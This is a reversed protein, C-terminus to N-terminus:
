VHIFASVKSGDDSSESGSSSGSDGSGESSSSNDPKKDGRGAELKKKEKKKRRAKAKKAAEEELPEVILNIDDEEIGWRTLVRRLKDTKSGAPTEGFSRLVNNLDDHTWLKCHTWAAYFTFHLDTTPIVGLQYRDSFYGSGDTILELDYDHCRYAETSVVSLTKVHKVDAELRARIRPPDKDPTDEDSTDEDPADVIKVTQLVLLMHSFASVVVYYERKDDDGHSILM